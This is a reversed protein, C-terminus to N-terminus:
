PSRIALAANQSSFVVKILTVNHISICTKHRKLAYNFKPSSTLHWCYAVSRKCKGLNFFMKNQLYTNCQTIHRYWLNFIFMYFWRFHEIRKRSCLWHWIRGLWAPNSLSYKNCITFKSIMGHAFVLCLPLASSPSPFFFFCSLSACACVHMCVGVWICVCAHVVQVHQVCGSMHACVWEYACVRVRAWLYEHM